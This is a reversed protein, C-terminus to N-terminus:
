LLSCTIFFEFLRYFETYYCSVVEVDYILDAGAPVNKGDGIKGYALEAPITLRRKEGVCM